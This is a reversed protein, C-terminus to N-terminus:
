RSGSQALREQNRKDMLKLVQNLTDQTGFASWLKETSKDELADVYIKRLNKSLGYAYHLVEADNHKDVFEAIPDMM